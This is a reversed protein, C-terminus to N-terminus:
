RRLFEPSVLLTALAEPPNACRAIAAHTAPSCLSGLAASAVAEAAPAGNRGAMTLAWDARRLVSEGSLWDTTTDPWGNPLSAGMFPQGMDNAAALFRHGSELPLDLARQVSVLYEAPARFKTLPRWAEAMRAVAFMAETLDGGTDKLVRELQAVCDPPPTDAVFQRVMRTAIHKLTAPHTAITDLAAESGALGEPFVRGLFMKPGPEHRDAQFIFGSAPSELDVSRGTLIEAFASVDQQSYGAGVGLTHLELCERALNENIGGHAARGFRSNPGVSSNNDLYILMAPHRMVAKVLDAFRGTVHPRIAERVYAGALGFVWGGARASVTFHNAWFWVLRERVHLDTTAAYQLASTMEDACLDALGYTPHAGAKDANNYDRGVRIGNASSPGTTALLPDPTTLQKRIWQRPDDPVPETGRRGFGFRRLAHLGSGLM